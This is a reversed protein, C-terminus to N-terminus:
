AYICALVRGNESMYLKSLWIGPQPPHLPKILPKNQHYSCPFHMLYLSLNLDVDLKLMEIGPAPSRSILFWALWLCNKLLKELAKQRILLLSGRKVTSILGKLLMSVTLIVTFSPFNKFWSMFCGRWSRWWLLFVNSAREFNSNFM